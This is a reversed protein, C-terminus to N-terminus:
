RVELTVVVPFHDSGLDPGVKRGTAALGKVLVHDIPLGIVPNRSMWSAQIGQGLASDALGTAALLRTFAKSWPTLNLDGALVARGEPAEQTFAAAKALQVQQGRYPPRAAHLGVLRFCGAEPCFDAALVPLFAGAARDELIRAAPWRSFLMVEFVSQWRDGIRYPLPIPPMRHEAPVETLLILDPKETEVLRRFSELYPTRGHMNYILLRIGGNGAEAAPAPTLYPLLPGGNILVLGLAAAAIWRKRRFVALGALALTAVALHPRFHVALGCAPCFDELFGLGTALALLALITPLIPPTLM